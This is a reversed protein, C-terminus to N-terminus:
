RELPGRQCAMWPGAASERCGHREAGEVIVGSPRRFPRKGRTVAQALRASKRTSRFRPGRREPIFATQMAVRFASSAHRYIQGGDGRELTIPTASM